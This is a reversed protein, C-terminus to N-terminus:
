FWAREHRVRPPIPLIRVQRDFNAVAVNKELQASAVCNGRNDVLVDMGM